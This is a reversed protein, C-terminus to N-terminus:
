RPPAGLDQSQVPAPGPATTSTPQLDKRLSRNIQFELEVNMSSMLRKTLDYLDSRTDNSDTDTIPHTGVVRAEVSGRPSGDAATVDLHVAFSGQYQDEGRTLSADEIIFHARGGNGAAFLRDQAMRRLAAVPPEPALYEVHRGGQAPRWSDDIDISSVDLPLKTLYDYTLPDFQLPPANGACSALLLCLTAPFVGALSRRSTLCSIPTV